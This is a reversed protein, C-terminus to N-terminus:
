RNHPVKVTVDRTTTNGYADTCSITITYVRGTGGGAREARLRVKNANVVEWDPGTDGDGTGNVPENSSVSLSRTLAGPATCNDAVTYSVNIDVMKHNPSWLEPKDVSEGSITPLETDNVTVSYNATGAVSNDQLTGTVVVPTTGVPFFGSPPASSLVGCIGSVTAAPLQVFAGCAGADNSQVVNAPPTITCAQQTCSPDATVVNLSWGGAISGIDAGADDV